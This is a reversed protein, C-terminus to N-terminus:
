LHKGKFKAFNRSVDKLLVDGPSQKQIDSIRNIVANINRRYFNCIKTILPTGSQFFVWTALLGLICSAQFEIARFCSICSPIYSVLCRLCTVNTFCPFMHLTLYTPCSLVFPVFCTIYSLVYPVLNIPVPAHLTCLVHPVFVRVIKIFLNCSKLILNKRTTNHIQTRADFVLKGLLIFITDLNRSFRM